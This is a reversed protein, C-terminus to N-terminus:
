SLGSARFVAHGTEDDIRHGLRELVDAGHRLTGRELSRRVGTDLEHWLLPNAALIRPDLELRRGHVDRLVLHSSVGDYQRVATLADTRIVIRRWPTRVALWGPGASVQPPLLVGLVTASLVGWLLARTLTLSGADWDVLLCMACFVLTCCVALRAGDRWHRDGVPAAPSSREM